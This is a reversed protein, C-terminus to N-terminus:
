MVFAPDILDSEWMESMLEYLEFSTMCGAPDFLEKHAQEPTLAELTGARYHKNVLTIFANSYTIRQNAKAAATIIQM